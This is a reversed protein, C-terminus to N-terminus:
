HVFQREPFSTYSLLAHFKSDVRVRLSTNFFLLCPVTISNTAEPEGSCVRFRDTQSLVSLMARHHPTTLKGVCSAAPTPHGSCPQWRPVEISSSLCPFQAQTHAIVTSLSGFMCM